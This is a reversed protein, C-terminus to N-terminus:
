LRSGPDSRETTSTVIMHLLLGLGLLAVVLAASLVALGTWDSMSGLPILAIGLFTLVIGLVLRLVVAPPTSPTRM